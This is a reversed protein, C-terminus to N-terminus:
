CSWYHGSTRLSNIIAEVTLSLCFFYTLNAIILDNGSLPKHLPNVASYPLIHSLRQTVPAINIQIPGFITKRYRESTVYLKQGTLTMSFTDHYILIRITNEWM